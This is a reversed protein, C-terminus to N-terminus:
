RMDEAIRAAGLVAAGGEAAEIAEDPRILRLVDIGAAEITQFMEAADAGPPLVAVAGTVMRGTLAIVQKLADRLSLGPPLAVPEANGGVSVAIEIDGDLLM